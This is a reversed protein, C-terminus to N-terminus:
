KIWYRCEADSYNLFNTIKNDQRFEDTASRCGEYTGYDDIIIIGNPVVKSYLNELCIKTSHYLDADLRLLAIKNIGSSAIKVTDQFWGKHFHLHSTPYGISSFLAKNEELTGPGGFKDYIGDIPKMRGKLEISPNGTVERVQDMIFMGDVNPDPECINDFADFLHILRREESHKLNALAMLASAGGKWVGCEVLAGEVGTKELYIVHEYLTALNRYNVMSHRRIKKIQEYEEDGYEFKLSRDLNFFFSPMQSYTHKNHKRIKEVRYGMKRILFSLFNKM